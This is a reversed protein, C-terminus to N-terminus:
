SETELRKILNELYEKEQEILSQEKEKLLKERMSQEEARIKETLGKRTKQIEAKQKEMDTLFKTREKELSRKEEDLLQKEKKLTEALKNMENELGCKRSDYEKKLNILAKTATEKLLKNVNSSHGSETVPLDFSKKKLEKQLMTIAKKLKINEAITKEKQEERAKEMKGINRAVVKGLTETGKNKRTHKAAM